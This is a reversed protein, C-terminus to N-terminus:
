ARCIHGRTSLLRWHQYNVCHDLVQKIPKESSFVSVLNGTLVQATLLDPQKPTLNCLTQKNSVMSLDLNPNPFM